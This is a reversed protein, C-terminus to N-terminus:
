PACLPLHIDTLLESPVVDKPSNLYSEFIPAHDPEFGSRPLWAGMLWRYAGRMDSYPGKYRLRAYLGGRLRTEVLPEELPTAQPIPALAVSRLAGVDVLDPDDFFAALMPQSQTLLNQAALASFLQGMARDIQMYAGVHTVGACCQEPLNEVCVAFGSQDDALIAAKFTAHGGKARYDAPSLKYALKFARSFADTSAYGAWKAVKALPMDSNALRDAARLMRLRRITDGLTEGRMATWIRHWHWSSLCAIEALDEPRIDTDLHSHIYDQVRDMRIQYSDLTGKRTM